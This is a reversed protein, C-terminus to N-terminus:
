EILMDGLVSLHLQLALYTNNTIKSPTSPDSFPTEKRSKRTAAVAGNAAARAGLLRMGGM